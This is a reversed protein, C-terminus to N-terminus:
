EGQAAIVPKREPIHIEGFLFTSFSTAKAWEIEWELDNLKNELETLKETMNM